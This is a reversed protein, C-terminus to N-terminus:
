VNCNAQRAARREGAIGLGINPIAVPPQAAEAEEGIPNRRNQWVGVAAMYALPPVSSAIKWDLRLANLAAELARRKIADPAYGYGNEVLLAQLEM